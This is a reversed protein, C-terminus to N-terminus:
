VMGRGDCARTKPKTQYSRVMESRVICYADINKYLYTYIHIIQILEFDIDIDSDCM